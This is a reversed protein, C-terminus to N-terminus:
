CSGKPKLNELNSDKPFKSLLQKTMSSILEEEPSIEEALSKEIAINSATLVMAQQIENQSQTLLDEQRADPFHGIVDGLLASFVKIFQENLEYDDDFYQEYFSTLSTLIHYISNFAASELEGKAQDKIEKNVRNVGLPM